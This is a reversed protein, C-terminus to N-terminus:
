YGGGGDGGSGGSGSSGSFIINGRMEGSPYTNSHINIYWKGALLQDIQVQTLVITTGSLTGSTGTSFGEIPISIPSSKLSSGDEAGHFHMGTTSTSGSGLQWIITYAITKANPDFAIEATGSGTTNVPPVESAGTLQITVRKIPNTDTKKSKKCTPLLLITSLSVAALILWRNILLLKKM